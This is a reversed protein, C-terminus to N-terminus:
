AVVNFLGERRVIKVVDLALASPFVEGAVLSAKTVEAAVLVM